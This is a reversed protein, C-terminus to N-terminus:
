SPIPADIVSIGAPSARISRYIGNNLTEPFNGCICVTGTWRVWGEKQAIFWGPPNLAEFFAGRPHPISGRSDVM